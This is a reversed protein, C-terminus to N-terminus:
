VVGLSEKYTELSMIEYWLTIGAEDALTFFDMYYQQREQVTALPYYKTFFRVTTFMPTTQVMALRQRYVNKESISYSENQELAVRAEKMINIMKNLFKLDICGKTPDLYETTSTGIYLRPNNAFAIAYNQEYSLILEKVYPAVTEGWYYTVFEDFLKGVDKDSDWLLNRYIYGRLDSQWDYTENHAAQMLVYTYGFKQMNKVTQKITGLTPYYSIYDNYDKDHVWGMLENACKSWKNIESYVGDPDNEDIYPYLANKGGAFRIVVKEDVMVSEHIPVLEAGQQKLPAEQTYAYAFTVIRFDREIGESKFDEQIERAIVNVFRVLTGSAMYKEWSEQCKACKCYIMGDSQEFGFYKADPNNLIDQKMEEIVVKAVSVDMTEDLTGDDTIGNTLCIMRWSDGYVEYEPPVDVFFEPNTEGYKEYPVFANMNHDRGTRLYFASQEGYKEDLYNLYSSDQRTRAVFEPSAYSKYTASSLYLRGVFDPVEVDNTEYLKVSTLAPVYTCEATLFRIGLNKELFDYVGYLVSREMAGDIFVMNGVTKVFFGDTNLTSYDFQFDAQELLTTKGLSIYCNETNYQAKDDAVIKLNGGTSEFVFNVLESAAYELCESADTPLVISYATQKNEVLSAIAVKKEEEVIENQPKCATFFSVATLCTLFFALIKKM